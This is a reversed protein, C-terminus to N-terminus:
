RRTSTSSTGASSMSVTHQRAVGLVHSLDAAHEDHEVARRHARRREDICRASQNRPYYASRVGNSRDTGANIQATLNPLIDFDATVNSLIRRSIGDDKVQEAIAVPNRVPVAGTGIEYFQEVGHRM